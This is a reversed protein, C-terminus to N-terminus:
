GAKSGGMCPPSVNAVSGSAAQWEAPTLTRMTLAHLGSNLEAALADYVRRQRRVLPLGAFAESVVVLNFHTEQNPGSHMHSEDVLELHIPALAEGLRSRIRTSRETM